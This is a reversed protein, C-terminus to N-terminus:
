QRSPPTEEAPRYLVRDKVAPAGRVIDAILFPPRREASVKLLATEEGGSSLVALPSGAGPYEVADILVFHDDENVLSVTGIVRATAAEKPRRPASACSSLALLPVLLAVPHFPSAM